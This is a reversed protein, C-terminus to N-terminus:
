ATTSPSSFLALGMGVLLVVALPWFLLPVPSIHGIGSLLAAWFVFTANFLTGLSAGRLKIFHYYALYSVCASLVCSVSLFIHLKVLTSVESFVQPSHISLLWLCIVYCCVSFFQRIALLWTPNQGTRQLALSLLISEIGWGCMAVVALILGWLM